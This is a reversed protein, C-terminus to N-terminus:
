PSRLLAQPPGPGDLAGLFDVIDAREQQSLGLPTLESTGSYGYPHGGRDHFAVVEDLTRMQGTHMFSPRQAVCRLMPTRFAGELEPGVSSPLRADDGDSFRSRMNLADGLAAPLGSAAGHDGLDQFAVAVKAPALGVNHFRQDSFFPGAHCRVCQGKDVFLAAGRQEAGSLASADGHVRRDFRGSGCSLLRQYAGLAKGVNVVVQTVATQDAPAMRDYEAGDGPMGHCTPRTRVPRDCGTQTAALPPFRRKNALPPLPGFLAEYEDRYRAYVQQAVFLRSSNMETASELPGFPQNYMADRRGDWMLLRAQGVDLLSPTRRPNWGAALSIQKGLSRNDLFGASAVHCGACAVKGTEGRMGLAHPSGDNDGDLLRGSFGPDFFLRQGLRAARPDDAFRNSRDPPPPPLSPPSLEALKARQAGTLSPEPDAGPVAPNVREHCGLLLVLAALPSLSRREGM